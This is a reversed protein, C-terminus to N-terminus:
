EGSSRVCLVYAEFVTVFLPNSRKGNIFSFRDPFKSPNGHVNGWVDGSLQMNGKVHYGGVDAHKDYISQLEDSSPLRWDSYGALRLNQCYQMRNGLYIAVGSDRRTWMMGTAPDKYVYANQSNLKDLWVAIQDRAERADPADPVLEVYARMHWIAKDYHELEAYILAANFHGEPWVPDIKLGAEYHAVADTLRKDKVANEAQVRAARVEESIPPKVPLARWTAAKQQFDAWAATDQARLPCAAAFLVLVQTFAFVKWNSYSM